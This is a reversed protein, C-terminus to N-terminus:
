LRDKLRKVIEKVMDVVCAGIIAVFVVWLMIILLTKM